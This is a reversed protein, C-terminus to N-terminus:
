IDRVQYDYYDDECKPIRVGEHYLYVMQIEEDTEVKELDELLFKCEGGKKLSCHKCCTM